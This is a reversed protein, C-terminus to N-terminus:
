RKMDIGADAATTPLYSLSDIRARIQQELSESSTGAKKASAIQTMAMAGKKPRREQCQAAHEYTLCSRTRVALTARYARWLVHDPMGARSDPPRAGLSNM